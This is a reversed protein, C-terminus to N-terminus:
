EVLKTLNLRFGEAPALFVNRVDLGGKYTPDLSVEFDKLIMILGMSSQMLGLRSAICARPGEGFPMYSFPAIKDKNEDSFRDPNFTYPDPHYKADYHLGSLPVYVPTGKEVIVKTGPIKYDQNAIRDLLPAPPYMRLTESTIQHLYKMKQYSEYTLGHEKLIERIEERVRKQYEPHKALQYLTMTITTVSSERGAVFFIASQGVLADGEFKFETEQEGNKLEILSDILDGRKIKNMERADMSEWFVKRFYNTSEGLMQSGIYSAITPFFFALMFQTARKVTMTLGKQAENFFKVKEPDFSNVEIGFAISSIIDTTYKMAIDKMPITITKKGDSFQDGLYKNMSEATATILYFAKKLKGSTFVPTIKTRLQKWKPNRITFLSSSGIEDHPSRATFYRNQFYNFDKVLIQKVLEPNRVLLFPKHLIYIGLIDDSESAQKYLEGIVFAPPKEQKIIEKVNGFFWHSSPLTPVGRRQWYSHKYKIYLILFTGLAIIGFLFDMFFSLNGVAM